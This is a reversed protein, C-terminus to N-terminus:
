SVGHCLRRYTELHGRAIREWSFFARLTRLHVKAMMDLEEWRLAFDTMAGAVQDADPAVIRLHPLSRVEPFSVTGIERSVIAPRALVLAETLALPFGEHRSVHVYIDSGAVEQRVAEGSLAGTFRVASACGLDRALQMLLAQGGRWDPGVLTLKLRIGQVERLAKAFAQILLDLGKTYVDLRGVFVFSVHDTTRDESVRGAREEAVVHVSPGQPLCYVEAQPLLAKIHDAEAPSLAHWARLHRYLGRRALSLYVRKGWQRSKQLVVPHFAGHPSLVLPCSFLCPVWLNDPNFEGHVHVVDPAFSKLSVQASRPLGRVQLNGLRFRWAPEWAFVDIGERENMKQYLPAGDPIASAIAVKAGLQAQAQALGLVANAVGGGGLFNPYWHLVRM